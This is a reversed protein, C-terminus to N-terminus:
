CFVAIRSCIFFDDSMDTISVSFAFLVAVNLSVPAAAFARGPEFSWTPVQLMDPDVTVILGSVQPFRGAGKEVQSFGNELAAKVAEGSLEVVVTVNGFPLETYVDRGALVAGAPYQKDGRIGGGNTIAIDAGNAGRLADAILDGIAAEQRRVTEERSDLPEVTSGIPADLDKSLKERMGAVLKESDPDPPVTATDIIRFAPTWSVTRKGDKDGVTVTLDLPALYNSETSTEVYATIGDYTVWLDHDHGSLIVDFKHSRAIELDQAHDAHFVGVVIDAGQKRIAAASDEASKVTDAFKLDGSSSMGPTGDLAVPVVGLKVGAIEKIFAGGLGPVPSGDAQTINVAAWPYLSIAQKALFNPVGFDFEHNGPVAVDFPAANTMTVMNEGHDIGSLLSPSLLDGTLAFFFNPNGAKERKVVADLRAPGGRVKGDDFNYVDGVGLLTIKVTEAAAPSVAALLAAALAAIPSRALQSVM